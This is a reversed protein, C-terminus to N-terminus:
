KHVKLFKLKEATVFIIDARKELVKAKKSFKKHFKKRSTKESFARCSLVTTTYNFHLLTLLHM